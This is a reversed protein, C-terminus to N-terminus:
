TRTTSRRRAMVGAAAVLAFVSMEWGRHARRRTTAISCGGSGSSSGSGADVRGADMEAVGSDTGVREDLYGVSDRLRAGECGAGSTVDFRPVADSCLTAPPSLRGALDRRRVEVCFTGTALASGAWLPERRDSLGGDGIVQVEITGDSRRVTTEYTGVSDTAVCLAVQSGCSSESSSVGIQMQVTPATPAVGGSPGDGTTFAIMRMFNLYPADSPSARVVYGTRPALPARPHLEAFDSFVDGVMRRVDAPVVTGNADELQFTPTGYFQGQVWPVIDTPVGVSNM